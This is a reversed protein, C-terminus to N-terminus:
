IELKLNNKYLIFHSKNAGSLVAQTRGSKYAQEFDLDNSTLKFYFGVSFAIAFTDEIAANTCVVYPVHKSIALAQDESYCANLVVANIDIGEGIFYEFLVDLSEPSIMISGNKDDNQVIIGGHEGEEGHGSFHLIQPNFTETFEKFQVNDVARQVTLSFQDQKNQIKEAIRSHEKDLNLKTTGSPNATLMLIRILDSEIPATSGNRSVVENHGAEPPAEAHDPLKDILANLSNTIQAMFVKADRADVISKDIERELRAFRASIQVAENTLDEDHQNTWSYLAAIAAKENANLVLTKLYEKLTRSAM